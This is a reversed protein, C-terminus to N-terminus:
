DLQVTLVNQRQDSNKQQHERIGPSQATRLRAFRQKVQYMSVIHMCISHETGYSLPGFIACLFVGSFEEL